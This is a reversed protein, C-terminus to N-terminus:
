VWRVQLQAHVSCLANNAITGSTVVGLLYAGDSPLTFDSSAASTAADAVPTNIAATSGSVVSGVNYRMADAGSAVFTVPYLGLTFNIAPATSNTAVLGRLRLKTTKSSVSYDSSAIYFMEPPTSGALTPLGGAVGMLSTGDVRSGLLFTSAAIDAGIYGKASHVLRYVSDRADIETVLQADNGYVDAFDNDDSSTRSTIPLTIAM